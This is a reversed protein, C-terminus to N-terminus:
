KKAAKVTDSKKSKSKSKSKLRRTKRGGKFGLFRGLKSELLKSELTNILPYKEKFIRLIQELDEPNVGEVPKTRIRSLLDKAYAISGRILKKDFTIEVDNFYQIILQITSIFRNYIAYDLIFTFEHSKKYGYIITPLSSLSVNIHKLWCYQILEDLVVNSIRINFKDRFFNACSLRICTRLIEVSPNFGPLTLLIRLYSVNQHIDMTERNDLTVLKCLELVTYNFVNTNLEIDIQGVVFNFMDLHENKICTMLIDKPLQRHFENSVLILSNMFPKLNHSAAYNFYFDLHHPFLHSFYMVVNPNNNKIFDNFTQDAAIPYYFTEYIKSNYISNTNNVLTLLNVVDDDEICKKAV